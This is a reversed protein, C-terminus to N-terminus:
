ALPVRSVRVMWDVEGSTPRGSLGMPNIRAIFPYTKHPPHEKYAGHIDEVKHGCIYRERAKGPKPEAM